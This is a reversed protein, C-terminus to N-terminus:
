EDAFPQDDGVCVTGVKPLRLKLLYADVAGTACDSTGYSTHGWSDSTLLRSSPTLAAARQAGTYNTAPDWYSGVILLPEYTRRTFVGRYADEDRGAYSDNACSGLSWTWLRGFYRARREAAAAAKPYSSLRAPHRSDTCAVAASAEFGNDYAFDLGPRRGQTREAIQALVAAARESARRRAAQRQAAQRPSVAAKKPPTTTVLLQSMLSTVLDPGDTFYLASLVTSVLDPYGFSTREDSDPDTLVLPHKKLRRAVLDFNKAPNGAAFSCLDPGARDCRALITRLALVAGEGAHIRAEIPQNATAPTGAWGEPDLVGDLALARVRDPFLNAYVEGLYSGYSFGLYSLRRDGVARRLVDLDRAVQATSMSVSLPAGTTSCGRGLRREATVYAKEAKAGYPFPVASLANLVPAQDAPDAFCRVADSSGVGRPDFGVLDFRDLLTRSLFAPAEQVLDVGSGGPGGPNLFLTGIRQKPHRAPLKMLAIEVQAGRPEDYDLPVAITACRFAGGCDYWRPVPTPIADVRRRERPSTVDYATLSAAAPLTVVGASLLALVLMGVVTRRLRSPRDRLM